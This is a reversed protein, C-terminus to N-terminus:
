CNLTYYIVHVNGLAKNQKYGKAKLYVNQKM